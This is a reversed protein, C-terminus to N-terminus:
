KVEGAYIMELSERAAAHEPSGLDFFHRVFYVLAHVTYYRGNERGAARVQEAWEQVTDCDTGKLKHPCEGAPTSIRLLRPDYNTRRPQSPEPESDPQRGKPAKSKSNFEHGCVCVKTVAGVYKECSPCQKRGRGGEDYTKVSHTAPAAEPEPEAEPKECKTITGHKIILRSVTSADLDLQKAWDGDTVTQCLSDFDLTKGFEAEAVARQLRSPTISPLSM